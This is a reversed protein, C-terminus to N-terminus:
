EDKYDDMMTDDKLQVQLVTVTADIDDFKSTVKVDNLLFTYFQSGYNTRLYVSRPDASLVDSISIMDMNLDTLQKLACESFIVKLKSNSQIWKAIKISSSDSTSQSTTPINTDITTTTTTSVVSQEDSTEEGDPAQRLNYFDHSERKNLREFVLPDDYQPIYPKIDLVPTGDVMDTGYFYITAEEIREIRVLSLGIPCPRHPSRCSFVGIRQGDLRPPAVKAKAHSRNKHFHYLIWIHSFDTLGELSHEPNTFIDASLIIRGLIEAGVTAQRPVAKKDPFATRIVGIPKFSISGNEPPPEQPTTVDTLTNTTTVCNSCKFDSLITRIGDIDKSQIITLKKVQQRSVSNINFLTSILSLTSNFPSSSM